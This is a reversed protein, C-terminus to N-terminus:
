MRDRPPLFYACVKAVRRRPPDFCTRDIFDCFRAAFDDRDGAVFPNREKAMLSCEAGDAVDASVLAARECFAPDDVPADGAWPMPILVPRLIAARRWRKSLLHRGVCDADFIASHHNAGLLIMDGSSKKTPYRGVGLPTRLSRVITTASTATETHPKLIAM